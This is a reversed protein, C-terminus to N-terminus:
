FLFFFVCVGVFMMMACVDCCCWFMVDCVDVCWCCVCACCVCGEIVVASCVCLVIYLCLRAIFLVIVYTNVCIWIVLLSM